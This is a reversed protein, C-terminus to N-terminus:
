ILIRGRMSFLEASGTRIDILFCAEIQPPPARFVERLAQLGGASCGIAIILPWSECSAEESVKVLDTKESM